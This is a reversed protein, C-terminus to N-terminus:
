VAGKERLTRRARAPAKRLSRRAARRGVGWRGSVRAGAASKPLLAGHSRAGERARASAQAAMLRGRARAAGTGTGVWGCWFPPPSLKVTPIVPQSSWRMSLNVLRKWFFIDQAGVAVDVIFVDLLSHKDRIACAQLATPPPVGSNCGCPIGPCGLSDGHSGGLPGM